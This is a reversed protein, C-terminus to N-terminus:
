ESPTPSGWAGTCGEQPEASDVLVGHRGGEGREERLAKRVAEAEAGGEGRWAAHWGQQPPRTQTASATPAQLARSSLSSTENM